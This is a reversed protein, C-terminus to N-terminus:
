EAVGNTTASGGAKSIGNLVVALAQGNNSTVVAHGKYDNGLVIFDGAPKDGGNRTNYGLSAGVSITDNAFTLLNAGAADYFEITIDADASGLNAIRVASFEQWSGPNIRRVGPVYIKTAGADRDAAAYVGAELVGGRDWQTIVTAVAPQDVEIKVAGAWAEDVNLPDFDSAPVDGGNRTNVGLTSNPQITKNLVLNATGGDGDVYTLTVNAVSGSLNQVNVASWIAGTWAGQPRVRFQTPAVLVTSGSAGACAASNYTASRTRSADAGGWTVVAVGAISGEGDVTVSASGAWSLPINPLTALDFTHQAGAPITDTDTLAVVGDRGTYTLDVDVASTGTNQVAFSSIISDEYKWLSPFCVASSGASVGSYLGMQFGDGPGGEWETAVTSALMKNSSVVASGVFNQPLQTSDPDIQISGNGPITRNPGAITGGSTNYYMISASAETSEKNALDTYTTGVGPDPFGAASAPIAVLALLMMVTLVLVIQKKM